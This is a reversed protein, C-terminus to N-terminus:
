FPNLTYGQEQLLAHATMASLALEIGPAFEARPLGRAQATQGCVIIRVGAARLAQLLPLNTNDAGFRRRYSEETLVAKAATGHLVLALHLNERPVGAAGHMNLFRALSAIAPNLAGADEPSTAVDFAVRFVHDTPTPIDLPDPQYVPGFDAIIPGTSPTSLAQAALPGASLAAALAFACCAAHRM